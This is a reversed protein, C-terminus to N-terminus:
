PITDRRHALRRASGACPGTTGAHTSGGSEPRCNRTTMPKAVYDHRRGGARFSIARKERDTLLIVYSPNATEAQRLRRCIELGGARAHEPRTARTQASRDSCCPGRPMVTQRSSPDFGWKRLIASLINRSTVDDEATLIRM